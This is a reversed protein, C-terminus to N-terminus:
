HLGKGAVPESLEKVAEVAVSELDCAEGGISKWHGEVNNLCPYTSAYLPVEKASFGLADLVSLILHPTWLSKHGHNFVLHRITSQPLGDGWHRSKLFNMYSPTKHSWVKVIDPFTTRVVGWPALVRYCEEFFRWGEQPTLHEIVHETFIYEVSGNGWILLKRIDVAPYDLNEWGELRHQGCGLHLKIM